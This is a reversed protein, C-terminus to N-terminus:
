GVSRWGEDVYTGIGDVIFHSLRVVFGDFAGGGDNDTFPFLALTVRQPYAFGLHRLLVPFVHQIIGIGLLGPEEKIRLIILQHDGIILFCESDLATQIVQGNEQILFFRTLQLANETLITRQRYGCVRILRATQSQIGLMMVTDDASEM